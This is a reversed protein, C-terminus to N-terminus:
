YLLFVSRSESAQESDGSARYASSELYILGLCSSARDMEGGCGEKGPGPAAAAARVTGVGAAAEEEEEEEPARLGTAAAAAEKMAAAKAAV